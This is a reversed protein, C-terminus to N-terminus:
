EAPVAFEERLELLNVPQSSHRDLSNLAAEVVKQPPIDLCELEFPCEFRYCPSCVTPRRLLTAPSRRPRWQSEYETGSYLLVLPRRFAEAIHLAASNNALVLSARAIVAAFEPVTTNGVLSVIKHGDTAALVPAITEAEGASGVIVLPVDVRDALEKAAAAFREPPYRRASCSAGPALVIFPDAPAVGARELICAAAEVTQPPLALELDRGSFPIGAADLLALNRDVQHGSDPPPDSALTLLGGGFEKSQGIRIPIEALYCAYAPPHPSQSFSTFIFAADFRKERLADVLAYERAADVAPRGSIEQWVPRWTFAEDVWPLLPAVQSGAPSAMLTIHAQPFRGRLARLAPGLMVVDGINDLRVALLREIGEWDKGPM